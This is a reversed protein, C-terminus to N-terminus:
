GRELEKLAAYVVFLYEELTSANGIKINAPPYGKCALFGNLLDYTNSGVEGDIPFKALDPLGAPEKDGECITWGKKQQDRLLYHVTGQAAFVPLKSVGLQYGRQVCEGYAGQLGGKFARPDEDRHAVLYDLQQRSQEDFWCRYQESYPRERLSAQLPDEPALPADAIRMSTAFADALPDLESPEQSVETDPASQVLSSGDDRRPEPRREMRGGLFALVMLVIVGVAALTPVLWSPLPKPKPEVPPRREEKVPARPEEEQEESRAPVAGVFDQTSVPESIFQREPIRETRPPEPERQQRIGQKLVARVEKEWLPLLQGKVNSLIANQSKGIEQRLGAIVAATLEQKITDRVDPEQLADAVVKRLAQEVMVGLKARLDEVAGSTAFYNALDERLAEAEQQYAKQRLYDSDSRGPQTQRDPM